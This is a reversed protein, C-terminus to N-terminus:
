SISPHTSLCHCDKDWNFAANKETLKHLPRAIRAFDKIFRRYYNALGLFQQIDRKYTPVPWNAVKEIKKPDKSVGEPSVIHGLFEVQQSCLCCKKPQLKLGAERLRNLIQTLNTLHELFTKVIVIIDDFYVLCNTWKLVGLVMDMLRQFTAPANCLGFPMVKFEFLGDSTCFATKEQDKKEIEVQWYGSILDLTSFWQSRTLTDLTDDMRPLPYADKRTISNVKRYDICFRISGDKKGVLVVPSAWPSSSRQIVDKSLMDSLLRRAEERQYPPLRRAQQRLPQADGTNITHKIKSTRGFDNPREAFLDVYEVLVHYMQQREEDTLMNETELVMQWLQKKKEDTVESKDGVACITEPLLEDPLSEMVAITRGKALKILENRSNLLRIPIRGDTPVVLARAM